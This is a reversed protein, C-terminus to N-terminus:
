DDNELLDEDIENPMLGGEARELGKRLADLLTRQEVDVDSGELHRCAAALLTARDYIEEDPLERLAYVIGNGSTGATLVDKAVRSAFDADSFINSMIWEKPEQPTALYAWSRVISFIEKANILTGDAASARLKPLLIRGLENFTEITIAAVDGDKGPFIGLDRGRQYFFISNVAAHHRAFVEVLHAGGEEAGWMKLMDKVLFRLQGPAELGGLGAWPIANIEEGLRFLADLLAVAPKPPNRGGFRFRIDSLVDGIMRAGQSSRRDVYPLLLYYIEDSRDMKFLESLAANSIADNTIHLQFYCDFSAKNAMGRRNHAEIHTESLFSDNFWKTHSPFLVGCLVMVSSASGEPLRKRLADVIAKREEDRGLLFRGESFLFDRNARIWDFAVPDFLRVGEIALLDQPDFEGELAPWAFKVANSLRLVDRPHNIWRHIGERVILHWRDNDDTNETLFDIEDDLMSLLAGRSSRPLELEQQIIKEAYRPGNLDESGDLAKWVIERDYSLLYIVNPLKGVTKVMQMIERVEEPPLRDIDDITILFKAGSRALQDRFNVYAAQLSPDALFREILSNISRKALNGAFGAAVGGSPDVSLALTAASDVLGDTARGLFRFLPKCKRIFWGDKPGLEESLVKFFSVILNQHGSVNWPRFEIHVVRKEPNEENHKRLFEDIFNIVTSKGSGWRGHLGIVYGNPAKMRIVVNFIRKAFPAFGLRDQRWPNRKPEDDGFVLDENRM